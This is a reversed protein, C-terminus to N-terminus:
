FMLIYVLIYLLQEKTNRNQNFGDDILWFVTNRFSVLINDM